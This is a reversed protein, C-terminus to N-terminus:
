LYCAMRLKVGQMKVNLKLMGPFSAFTLSSQLHSFCYLLHIFANCQYIRDLSFASLVFVFGGDDGRISLKNQLHLPM